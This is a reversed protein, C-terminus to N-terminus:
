PRLILFYLQGDHQLHGAAVEAYDGSGTYLDARGPGRIAGGTDQNLVFRRCPVWSGITGGEGILPQRTEIYGLAGPPFVRRDTALSRGPTLPVDLAGFPGGPRVRFFVYSPNHDLVQQVEDPHSRLYEAIRQMSMEDKPIKGTEMLLKGISRYPHGNASDYQLHLRSGDPFRLQGSGQVHLFFLAVPDEVWALVPARDRLAGERDIERRSPLPIVRDGALRGFITENRDQGPFFPGLDIRVLGEPRGYVPHSFRNDPQMNGTLEPAFYGTFLVQGSEQRGTSRYVRYRQRIFDQLADATPKRSLFNEFESLSRIMQRANYTDSGFQFERDGPVRAFFSLSQRLAHSLGDFVLDDTFRPTAEPSLLTLAPPEIREQPPPHVCASLALTLLGLLLWPRNAPRSAIRPRLRRRDPAGNAPHPSSLQM